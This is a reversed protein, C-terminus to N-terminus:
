RFGEHGIPGNLVTSEGRNLRRRALRLNAKPMGSLILYQALLKARDNM